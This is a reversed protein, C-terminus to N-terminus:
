VTSLFIEFAGMASKGFAIMQLRMEQHANLSSLKIAEM